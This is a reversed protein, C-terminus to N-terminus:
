FIVEIVILYIGSSMLVIVVLMALKLKRDLVSNLTKIATTRDTDPVLPNDQRNRINVITLVTITVIAIIAIYVLVFCGYWIEFTESWSAEWYM